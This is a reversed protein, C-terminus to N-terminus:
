ANVENIESFVARSIAHSLEKGEDTFGLNSNDIDYKILGMAMIFNRKSILDSAYRYTLSAVRELQEDYANM